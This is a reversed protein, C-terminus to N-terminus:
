RPKAGVLIAWGLLGREVRLYRVKFHPHQARPEAAEIHEPNAALWEECSRWHLTQYRDWDDLSAAIISVVPLGAAEFREVTARLTM